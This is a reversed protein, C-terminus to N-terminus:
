QIEENSNVNGDFGDRAEPRRGFRLGRALAAQWRAQRREVDDQRRVGVAFRVGIPTELARTYVVEGIGEVGQQRPAHFRILTHPALPEDVLLRAGSSSIEELMAYGLETGGNTQTNDDLQHLMVPLHVTSRKDGRADYIWRVVSSVPNHVETYRMRHMPVAHHTCHLEIRDRTEWPLGEFRVGHHYSTRGNRTPKEEVHMIVAKAEVAGTSLPLKVRIPEDKGLATGLRFGLGEPNLDEALAVWTEGTDKGDGDLLLLQFPFRDAFRDVHRQQKYVLSLRVVYYAFYMNYVAWMANLWFAASGWGPADYNIWGQWYALTAWVMSAGTVILLILQPAYTKFPVDGTGKPTVNFKLKGKAFYGSVAMVYIWFKAMNFREALFVFGTGRFVAEYMAFHLIVYPIFRILFEDNEVRIPLAGTIFFVIPALYLILKLYGDLYSTVSNFYALRQPWSLGKMFLPNFKRLIQMSGQGWRLRQVSYAGASAPALGYALSEGYYVSKWGQAHLILSTEMDETITETSFGGISEFAKRRLVGCSGCFFAANWHDKGPQILSFFLRQEEWVRRAEENVDYSFSDLNFFDQPSQVFAVEPDEFFGLLRDLIHPLPVHDADLQLVFEGKTNAFAHNLNGAKAHENGARRMYGIDLEDALAKLEDRKGDDLIYTRHPYRIARAGIATRRIVEIPEDYCTIFVDVSKGSPAPKPERRKLRWGTFVMLGAQVLMYTEAVVLPIAFWLADPNLTWGWRWIVWYLSYALTIVAFIRIFREVRDSVHPTADSIRVRSIADAPLDVSEPLAGGGSPRRPHTIIVEDAADRPEATTSM